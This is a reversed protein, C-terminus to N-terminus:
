DDPPYTRPYTIQSSPGPPHPPSKKGCAALPLLLLTALGLGCLLRPTM